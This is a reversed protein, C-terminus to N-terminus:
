MCRVLPPRVLDSKLAAFGKFGVVRCKKVRFFWTM